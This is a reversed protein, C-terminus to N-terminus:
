LPIILGVFGQDLFNQREKKVKEWLDQLHSVAKVLEGGPQRIPIGLYRPLKEMLERLGHAAFVFREPNKDDALVLLVGHYMRALDPNLENLARYLKNQVSSFGSIGLNNFESPYASSAIM